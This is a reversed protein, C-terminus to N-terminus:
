MWQKHKLKLIFICKLKNEFDNLELIPVSIGTHGYQMCAVGLFPWVVSFYGLNLENQQRPLLSLVQPFYEELTDLITDWFMWVIKSPDDLKEKVNKLGSMFSFNLVSNYITKGLSSIIGYTSNVHISKNDDADCHNGASETCTGDYEKVEFAELMICTLSSVLLIILLSSLHIKWTM